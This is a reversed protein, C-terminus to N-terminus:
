DTADKRRLEEGEAEPLEICGECKCDPDLCIKDTLPCIM